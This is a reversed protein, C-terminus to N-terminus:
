QLVRWFQIGVLNPPVDEPTVDAQSSSFYLTDSIETGEFLIEEFRKGTPPLDNILDEDGFDDDNNLDFQPKATRGGTCASVMYLISSGGAECPSESPIVSILVAVGMRLMPERIGREGVGPMDFFWGM